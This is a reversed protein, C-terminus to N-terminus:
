TITLRLRLFGEQWVRSNGCGTISFCVRDVEDLRELVFITQISVQVYRNAYVV